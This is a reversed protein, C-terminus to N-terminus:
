KLMLWYTGLEPHLTIEYRGAIYEAAIQRMEKASGERATLRLGPPARISLRGVVPESYFPLRNASVPVSGAAM